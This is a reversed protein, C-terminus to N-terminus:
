RNSLFDEKINSIITDIPFKDLTKGMLNYATFGKHIWSNPDSQDSVRRFTMYQGHYKKESRTM